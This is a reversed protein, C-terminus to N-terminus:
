QSSKPRRPLRVAKHVKAVHRNFAQIHLDGKEETTSGTSPIPIVKDCESCVWTGKSAGILTPM